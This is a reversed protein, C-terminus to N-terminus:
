RSEGEAARATGGSSLGGARAPRAGRYAFWAGYAALSLAVFISTAPLPLLYKLPAYFGAALLVVPLLLNGANMSRATLRLITPRLGFGALERATLINLIGLGFFAIHGLRILRRSTSAYDDLMTPAPVPGDFSWLGLIMGSLAGLALSAFGVLRMAALSANTDTIDATQHM